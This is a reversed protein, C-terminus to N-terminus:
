IWEPDTCTRYQPIWFILEFVRAGHSALRRMGADPIRRSMPWCRLSSTLMRTATANAMKKVIWDGFKKVNSLAKTSDWNTAGKAMKASASTGTRIRPSISRDTPWIYMTDGKKTVYQFLAPTGTNGLMTRASNTHQPSPNILPRTVTLSRTGDNMAVRPIAKARLPITRM